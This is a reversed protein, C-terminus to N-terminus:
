ISWTSQISRHPPGTLSPTKGPRREGFSTNEGDATPDMLPGCLLKYALFSAPDLNQPTEDGKGVIDGAVAARPSSHHRNQAPTDKSKMTIKRKQPDKRCLTSITPAELQDHTNNDLSNTRNFSMYYRRFFTLVFCYICLGPSEEKRFLSSVDHSLSTSM